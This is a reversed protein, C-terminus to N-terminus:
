IPMDETHDLPLITFAETDDEDYSQVEASEARAGSRSAEIEDRIRSITRYADSIADCIPQYEAEDPETDTIRDKYYLKGLQAYLHRIHEQQRIIQLKRGTVFALHRAAETAKDAFSANSM